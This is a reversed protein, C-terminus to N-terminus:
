ETKKLRKFIAYHNGYLLPKTYDGIDLGKLTNRVNEPYCYVDVEGIIGHNERSTDISYQNVLTSFEQGQELAEYISDATEKTACLIEALSLLLPSAYHLPARMHFWTSFPKNNVRAPSFRWQKIASVALSDWESSGSSKSFRVQEVTGNELVFVALSIESPLKEVSAPLAPLPSQFLLLPVDSESTQQIPFCGIFCATCLCWLIIKM